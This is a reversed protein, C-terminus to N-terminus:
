DGAPDRRVGFRDWTEDVTTAPTPPASLVKGRIVGDPGIFYTRLGSRGPVVPTAFLGYGTAPDAEADVYYYGDLGHAPDSAAAFADPLLRIRDGTADRHAEPGGLAALGPAYRATDPADENENDDAADTADAADAPANDALASFREDRYHEQAARYQRLREVAAAENDLIPSPGLYGPTLAVLLAVVALVSALVALLKRGTGAGARIAFLARLGAVVACGSFFVALIPSVAGGLFGLVALVIGALALPGPDRTVAPPIPDPM